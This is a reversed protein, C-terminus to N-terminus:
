ADRPVFSQQVVSTLALEGVAGLPKVLPELVRAFLMAEVVGAARKQLEPATCTIQSASCKM